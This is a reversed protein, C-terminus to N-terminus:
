PCLWLLLREQGSASFRSITAADNAGPEYIKITARAIPEGDRFFARADHPSLVGGGAGYVPAATGPRTV